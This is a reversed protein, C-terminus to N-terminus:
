TRKTIAITSTNTRIIVPLFGSHCDRRYSAAPLLRRVKSNTPQQIDCRQPQLHSRAALPQAQAQDNPSM